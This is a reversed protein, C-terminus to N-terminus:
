SCDIATRPSAPPEPWGPESPACCGPDVGECGNEARVIYYYAAGVPAREDDIASTDSADDTELCTARVPIGTTEFDDPRSSRVVDYRMSGAVTIDPIM